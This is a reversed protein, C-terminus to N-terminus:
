TIKWGCLVGLGGSVRDRPVSKGWHSQSRNLTPKTVVATTLPRHPSSGVSNFFCSNYILTQPLRARRQPLTSNQLPQWQLTWSQPPVIHLYTTPLPPPSLRASSIAQLTMALLHLALQHSQKHVPSFPAFMPNSLSCHSTPCAGGHLVPPASGIPKLETRLGCISVMKIQKTIRGVLPIAEGPTVRQILSSYKVPLVHGSSM